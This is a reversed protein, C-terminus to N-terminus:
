YAGPRATFREKRVSSCHRGLETAIEDAARACSASGLIRPGLRDVLRGTLELVEKASIKVSKLM